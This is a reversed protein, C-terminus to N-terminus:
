LLRAIDTMQETELSHFYSSITNISRGLFLALQAPSISQNLLKMVVSHRAIYYTLKTTDILKVKNRKRENEKEIIPNIEDNIINRLYVIQTKLFNALRNNKFHQTKKDCDEYYPLFYEGGNKLYYGFLDEVFGGYELVIKFRMKTKRRKGDITIYKARDIDNFSIQTSKMNFLDVPSLATKLMLCFFALGKFGTFNVDNNRIRLCCYRIIYYMQDDSLYYNRQGFKYPMRKEIYFGLAKAKRMNLAITSESSKREIFYDEFTHYDYDDISDFCNKFNYIFAKWTRKTTETMRNKAIYDSVVKEITKEESLSLIREFDIEGDDVMRQCPLILKELTENLSKRKFRQTKKDFGTASLGLSKEKSKGNFTVRLSLTGNHEVVRLKPKSTKPM